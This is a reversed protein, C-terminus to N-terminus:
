PTIEVVPRFYDLCFCRNAVFDHRPYSRSYCAAACADEPSVIVQPAAAIALVLGGIFGGALVYPLRWPRM